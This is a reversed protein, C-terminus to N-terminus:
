RPAGGRAVARWGRRAPRPRGRDRAANGKMCGGRACAAARQACDADAACPLGPAAGPSVYPLGAAAGPSVYALGAAAGPSVHPLGRPQGPALMPCGGRRALHDAREHQRVEVRLLELERHEHESRADVPQLSPPPGHPLVVVHAVVDDEQLYDCAVLLQACQCCLAGSGRASGLGAAAATSTHM